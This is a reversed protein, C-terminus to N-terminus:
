FIVKSHTHTNKHRVVGWSQGWVGEVKPQFNPKMQYLNYHNTLFQLYLFFPVVLCQGEKRLLNVGVKYCLM